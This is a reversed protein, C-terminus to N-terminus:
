VCVCVRCAAPADLSTVCKLVFPTLSSACLLLAAAIMNDSARPGILALDKADFLAATEARVRVDSHAALLRMADALSRVVVGRAGALEVESGLAITQFPAQVTPQEGRSAAVVSVRLTQLTMILPAPQLTAVNATIGRTLSSTIEWGAAVITGAASAPSSLCLQTLVRLTKLVQACLWFSVLCRSFLEILIVIM